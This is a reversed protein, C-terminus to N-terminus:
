VGEPSPFESLLVDVLSQVTEPTESMDLFRWGSVYRRADADSRHCHVSVARAITKLGALTHFEFARELGPAVEADTEIAFGGLSLDRLSVMPLLPDVCRADVIGGTPLRPARRRNEPGDM